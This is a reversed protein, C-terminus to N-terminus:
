ARRRVKRDHAYWGEHKSKSDCWEGHEALYDNMAKFLEDTSSRDNVYCLHYPAIQLKKSNGGDHWTVDGIFFWYDRSRGEAPKDCEHGIGYIKTIIGGNKHSVDGPEYPFQM